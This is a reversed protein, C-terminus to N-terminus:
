LKVPNAPADAKENELLDGPLADDRRFKEIQQRFENELAALADLLEQSVLMRPRSSDEDPFAGFYRKGDLM